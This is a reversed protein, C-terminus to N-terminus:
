PGAGRTLRWVHGERRILGRRKLRQQASRLIHKWRKGFRKGGIIRERSDDCLEPHLAQVAEEILHTPLAGQSHLVYLVAEGLVGTESRGGVHAPLVIGAVEERLDVLGQAEAAQRQGSAKVALSSLAALEEKGLPTGVRSYADLDRLIGRVVRRETLLVGYEYNANLGSVTLNASTVLAAEDDAVYVKAHL